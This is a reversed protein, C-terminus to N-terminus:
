ARNQRVGKWLAGLDGIKEISLQGAGGTKGVLVTKMGLDNGTKVNMLDDEVFWVEEPNKGLLYLAKQYGHTKPKPIMDFFRIDMFSDFVGTIGLADTVRRAHETTANTFVHKKGPLSSLMERLGKDESLFEEIPVEHVYKLYHEADVGHRSVLGGMTLGYERWYEIRLPNVAEPAIGVVHTMYDIILANVRDFLGNGSPYLTNDCDILWVPEM